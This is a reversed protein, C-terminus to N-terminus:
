AYLIRQMDRISPENNRTAPRGAFVNDTKTVVNTNVPAVTVSGGGAGGMPETEKFLANGMLTQILLKAGESLKGTADTMASSLPIVAENPHLFALGAQTTIGGMKLFPIDGPLSNWNSMLASGGGMKRLADGPEGFDGRVDGIFKNFGIAPDLFLSKDTYDVNGNRYNWALPFANTMKRFMAGTLPKAANRRGRAVMGRIFDWRTQADDLVSQLQLEQATREESSMKSLDKGLYGHIKKEIDYIRGSEQILISKARADLGVGGKEGRMFRLQENEQQLQFQKEAEEISGIDGMQGGGIETGAGASTLKKSERAIDEVSVGAETALQQAESETVVSRGLKRAIEEGKEGTLQFAKEGALTREQAETRTSENAAKARRDFYPSIVNDAIYNGILTGVGAAIAATAIVLLAPGLFAGVSAIAPLLTGTLFGGTATVGGSLLGGMGGALGAPLLGKLLGGLGGLGGGEKDRRRGSFLDLLGGVKKKAGELISERKGLKDEKKPETNEDIEELKDVIEESTEPDTGLAARQEAAILKRRKREKLIDATIGGVLPIKRITRDKFGAVRGRVIDKAVNFLSGQKELAQIGGGGILSSLQKSQEDTSKNLVDQIAKMKTLIDRTESAGKGISEKFLDTIQSLMERGHEDLTDDLAKARAVFGEEGYLVQEMRKAGRIQNRELFTALQYKQAEGVGSMSSMAQQLTAM